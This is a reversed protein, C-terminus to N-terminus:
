LNLDQIAWWCLRLDSAQPKRSDPGGAAQNVVSEWMPGFDRERVDALSPALPESDEGHVLWHSGM